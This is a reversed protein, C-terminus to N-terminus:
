NLTKLWNAELLSKLIYWVHGIQLVFFYDHLIHASYGSGDWVRGKGCYTCAVAWELVKEIGMGSSVQKLIRRKFNGLPQCICKSRQGM